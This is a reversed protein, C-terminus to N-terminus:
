SGPYRRQTPAYGCEIEERIAEVSAAATDYLRARSIVENQANTRRLGEHPGVGNLYVSSSRLLKGARSLAAEAMALKGHLNAVRIDDFEIWNEIMTHIREAAASASPNRRVFEDVSDSGTIILRSLYDKPTPM